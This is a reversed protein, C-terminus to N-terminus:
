VDVNNTPVDWPASRVEMEGDDHNTTIPFSKVDHNSEERDVKDLRPRNVITVCMEPETCMGNIAFFFPLVAALVMWLRDVIHPLQGTFWPTGTAFFSIAWSLKFCTILILTTLYTVAGVKTWRPPLCFVRQHTYFAYAVNEFAILILAFQMGIFGLTHGLVASIETGFFPIPDQTVTCVFIMRFWAVLVIKFWLLVRASKFVYSGVKENDYDNRIQLYNLIIYLLLSYEFAPYILATAERSPSYDWNVCINNFGFHQVLVSCHLGYTPDAGETLPCPGLKPAVLLSTIFMAFFCMIWFSIYAILRFKEVQFVYTTTNLQHQEQQENNTNTQDSQDTQSSSIQETQSSSNQEIQMEDNSYMM